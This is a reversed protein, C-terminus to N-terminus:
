ASSALRDFLNQIGRPLKLAPRPETTPDGSGMKVFGPLLYNFENDLLGYFMAM